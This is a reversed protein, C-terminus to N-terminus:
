ALVQSLFEMVANIYDQELRCNRLMRRNQPTIWVSIRRLWADVNAHGTQRDLVSELIVLITVFRRPGHLFVSDPQHGFKVLM